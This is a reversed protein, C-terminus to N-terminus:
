GLGAGGKMCAFAYEWGREMVRWPRREGRRAEGVCANYEVGCGAIDGKGGM